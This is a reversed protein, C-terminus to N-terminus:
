RGSKRLAVASQRQGHRGDGQGRDLVKYLLSDRAPAARAVDAKLGLYGLVAAGAGLTKGVFSRRSIM